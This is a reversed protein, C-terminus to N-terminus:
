PRPGKAQTDRVVGSATLPTIGFVRRMARSLHAQDAFGADAAAEALSAGGAMARAARELKRWALWTTLPTGLHAQALARLRATSLGVTEAARAMSRAGEATALFRLAAELRPDPPVAAGAAVALADICRALPADPDVLAALESPLEAVGGPPASRDVHAALATQPELHVIVVDALPLLRHRAGPRAVLARGRAMAGDDGHLEAVEGTTVVLQMTTHAHSTNDGAGGRYAAWADGYHFQGTWSM